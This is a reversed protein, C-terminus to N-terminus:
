KEFLGCVMGSHLRTTKKHGKREGNNQYIRKAGFFMNFAEETWLVPWKQWCYGAQLEVILRVPRGSWEVVIGRLAQSM